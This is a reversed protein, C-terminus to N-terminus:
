AVEVLHLAKASPRMVMKVLTEKTDDFGTGDEICRFQRDVNDASVPCKAWFYLRGEFFMADFIESGKPMAISQTEGYTRPMVAFRQVRHTPESTASATAPQQASTSM